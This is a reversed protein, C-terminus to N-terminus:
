EDATWVVWSVDLYPPFNMKKELNKKHRNSSPPLPFLLSLVDSSDKKNNVILYCGKWEAHQQLDAFFLVYNYLM